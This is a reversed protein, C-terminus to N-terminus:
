KFEREIITNMKAQIALWKGNNEANRVKFESSDTKIMIETDTGDVPLLSKGSTINSFSTLQNASILDELKHKNNVKKISKNNAPDVSSGLEYYMTDPTIVLSQFYGREGGFTSISISKIEEVKHSQNVGSCSFILTALGLFLFTSILIFLLNKM